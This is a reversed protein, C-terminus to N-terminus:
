FLLLGVILMIMLMSLAFYAAPKELMKEREVQEVMRAILQGARISAARRAKFAIIEEIDKYTQEM